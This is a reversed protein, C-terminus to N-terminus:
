FVWELVLEEMILEDDVELSSKNKFLTFSLSLSSSLSPPLSPSFFCFIRDSPYLKDSSPVSEEFWSVGLSSGELSDPFEAPSKQTQCVRSKIFSINRLFGPTPFVKEEQIDACISLYYSLHGAKHAFLM